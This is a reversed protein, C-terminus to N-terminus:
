VSPGSVASKQAQPIIPSNAAPQLRAEVQLSIIEHRIVTRSAGDQGQQKYEGSSSHHETRAP